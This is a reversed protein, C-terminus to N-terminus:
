SNWSFVMKSIGPVSAEAFFLLLSPIEWLRGEQAQTQKKVKCDSQRCSASIRPAVFGEMLDRSIDNRAVIGSDNFIM